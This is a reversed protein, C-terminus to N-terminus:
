CNCNLAIPGRCISGYYYDVDKVYQGKANTGCASNYDCYIVQKTLTCRTYDAPVPSISSMIKDFM